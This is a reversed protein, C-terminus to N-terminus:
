RSANVDRARLVALSEPKEVLGNGTGRAHGHQGARAYRLVREHQLLDLGGRASQGHLKLDDLHAIGPVEFTDEALYRFLAGPSEHRERIRLINQVWRVRIACNASVPRSAVINGSRSNTSAPAAQHGVPRANGVDPAPGRGVRCSGSPRPARRGGSRAAWSNSRTILRFVALARPRVIGGDTRRCAVSTMWYHVPSGEDGAGKGEEGRREGRLRLLGPFDVPRIKRKETEGALRRLEPDVFEPFTEALESVDLALVHDDFEPDAVGRRHAVAVERFFQHSDFTSTM